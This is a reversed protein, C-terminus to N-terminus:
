AFNVMITGIQPILKLVEQKIKDEIEGTERYTLRPDVIVEVDIEYKEYGISRSRIRGVDIVRPVMHVIDRIRQTKLTSSDMLGEIAIKLVKVCIIFILTLIFLSGFYSIKTYGFQNLVIFVMSAISVLTCVRAEWAHRILAHSNIMRGRDLVYKHMMESAVVSIVLMLLAVASAQTTFGSRLGKYSIFINVVSSFGVILAGAAVFVFNLKGIGYPYKETPEYNNIRIGIFLLASLIMNIGFYFGSTIIITSYGLYGIAVMAVTLALYVLFSNFYVGEITTSTEQTKIVDTTM